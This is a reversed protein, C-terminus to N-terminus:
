QVRQAPLVCAGPQEVSVPLAYVVRVAVSRVDTDLAVLVRLEVPEVPEADRELLVNNSRLDDAAPGM